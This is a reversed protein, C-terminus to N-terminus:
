RRGKLGQLAQQGYGLGTVASLQGGQWMTSPQGLPTTPVGPMPDNRRPAKIGGPANENLAQYFKSWEPYAYTSMPERSHSMSLQMNESTNPQMTDHQTQAQKFQQEQQVAREYLAGGLPDNVDGTSMVAGGANPDPIANQLGQVPGAGTM